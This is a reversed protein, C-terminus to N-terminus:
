GCVCFYSGYGPTTFRLSFYSLYTLYRKNSELKAIVYLCMWWTKSKCFMKDNSVAAVLTQPTPLTTTLKTTETSTKLMLLEVLKTDSIVFCLGQQLFKFKKIRKQFTTKM